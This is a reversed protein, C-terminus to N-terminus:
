KVRAVAWLDVQRVGAALLACKVEALTSGTTMVDDVVAVHGAGLLSRRARAGNVAFAGRVNRHREEMSLSTQSPTDRERKLARPAAPIGLMRGAYRALAAAQNFGRERLRTDHLPVPLLLKPLPEGRETVAQALLVGLVRAHAATGRYKLDRILEDAPPAYRLAVVAGPLPEHEWPFDAHCFACLDLDLSAGPFSCLCCRPPFLAAALVRSARHAITLRLQRGRNVISEPTGFM